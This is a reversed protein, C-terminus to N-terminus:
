KAKERPLPRRDGRGDIIMGQNQLMKWANEKDKEAEADYNETSGITYTTKTNDEKTELIAEAFLPSAQASLLVAAAWLLRKGKLM